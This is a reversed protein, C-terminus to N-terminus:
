RFEAMTVGAGGENWAGLRFSTVRSDDRLLEGVRERLAGTGKGHIIRLGPLDSLIAADVAAQVAGDIESIRMGRVDVEHKAEIDPVSAGASSAVGSERSESRPAAIRRATVAPVTARVSGLAVVLNDGRVEIVRAPRAGFAPVAVHDGVGLAGIDAVPAAVDDTDASDLAALAERDAGLRHEATRRAAAIAEDVSAFESSVGGSLPVGTRAAAARVAAVAAEIEKRADLVYKRSAERAERELERERIRAERERETVREARAAYSAERDLADREREDLDRQRRELDEILAAANREAEPVRQEARALIDAPMHLRRAISLGYSRGPIGKQLRYTPALAAEDFHLSANVVGTTEHALEKLAGLHTTAVTITGRATLAELIAAGLAAGENPDTGSGLEDALVLSYPTAHEIIEILNRVHGSFTSLSAEISQEDGIDAFVRDYLPLRSGAAVTPPVGAQAMLSLLAVAKLLVTKGGTNPGSVLLTREGSDLSLTFPVVAEPNQVVLLPHRGDIVSMGDDPSGFSAAACRNRQAFRARAVLSDLDILADFSASIAEVDPRLQDTADRLVREVERSEDIELERIRNGFEVAAPPEVFVTAGTASTDHVIGGVVVRGERRVPIVWRGNRMTVSGDDVRHHPELRAIQKELLRILEAEAGRLHRRLKRLEPSASDRVVGDEDVVRDLASERDADSILAGRHRSLASVDTGRNAASDLAGGQIRSAALLTIADRLDPANWVSGPVALRSIAASMPPIPQSPWPEEGGIVARM